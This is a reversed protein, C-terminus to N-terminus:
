GEGFPELKNRAEEYVKKLKAVEKRQEAIEEARYDTKRDSYADHLEVLVGDPCVGSIRIENDKYHAHGNNNYAVRVSLWLGYLYRVNVSCDFSSPLNLADLATQVKKTFTGDAKLIKENLFSALFKVVLPHYKNAMENYKNVLLVKIELPQM